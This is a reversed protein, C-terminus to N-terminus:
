RAHLGNEIQTAFDGIVEHKIYYMMRVRLLVRFFTKLFFSLIIYNTLFNVTVIRPKRTSHTNKAIRTPSPCHPFAIPCGYGEQM